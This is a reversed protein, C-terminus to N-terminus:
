FIRLYKTIAVMVVAVAYAIIFVFSIPDDWGYIILSVAVMLATLLLAAYGLAHKAVQRM